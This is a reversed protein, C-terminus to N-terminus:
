PGKRGKGGLARPLVFAAVAAVAVLLAYWARHRTALYWIPWVFAVAALTAGAALALIKFFTSAGSRRNRPRKTRGDEALPARSDSM